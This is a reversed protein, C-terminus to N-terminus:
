ETLRYLVVKMHTSPDTRAELLRTGAIPFSAALAQYVLTFQLEEPPLRSLTKELGGSCYTGMVPRGDPGREVEVRFDHSTLLIHTIGRERMAKLGRLLSPPGSFSEVVVGSM